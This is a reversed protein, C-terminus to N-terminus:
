ANTPRVSRLLCIDGRGLIAAFAVYAVVGVLILVLFILPGSSDGMWRDTLAVVVFM